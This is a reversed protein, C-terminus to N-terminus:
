LLCRTQRLYTRQALLAKMCAKGVWLQGTQDQLQGHQAFPQRTLVTRSALDNVSGSPAGYRSLLRPRSIHEAPSDPPLKHKHLLYLTCRTICFCFAMGQLRGVGIRQLAQRAAARAADLDDAARRAGAAQLVAQLQQRPQAHARAGRAGRLPAPAGAHGNVVHKQLQEAQPARGATGAACTGPRSPRLHAAASTKLLMDGPAAWSAALAREPHMPKCRASNTPGGSPAGHEGSHCTRPSTHRRTGFLHPCMCGATRM